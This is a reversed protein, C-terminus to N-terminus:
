NVFLNLHRDKRKNEHKTLQVSVITFQIWRKSVRQVFKLPNLPRGELEEFLPSEM